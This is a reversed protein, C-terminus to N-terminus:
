ILFDMLSLEPGDRYFIERFIMDLDMELEM